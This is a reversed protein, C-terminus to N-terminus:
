DLPGSIPSERGQLVKDSSPMISDNARSKEHPIELHDESLPGLPIKHAKSKREYRRPPCGIEADAIQMPMTVTLAASCNQHDYPEFWVLPMPLSENTSLAEWEAILLRLTSTMQLFYSPIDSGM